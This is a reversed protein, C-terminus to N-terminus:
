DPVRANKEAKYIYFAPHHWCFKHYLKLDHFAPNGYDIPFITPKNDKRWQAFFRASRLFKCSDKDIYYHRFVPFFQHFALIEIGMILKLEMGLRVTNARM